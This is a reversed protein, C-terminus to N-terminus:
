NMIYQKDEVEIKGDTVLKDLQAETIRGLRYQIKLFEVM